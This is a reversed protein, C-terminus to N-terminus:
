SAWAPRPGTARDPSSGPSSRGPSSRGPSSGPSSGAPSSGSSEPHVTAPRIRMQRTPDEEPVGGVETDTADTEPFERDLVARLTDTSSYRAAPDKVLLDLIVQELDPHIVPNFHRPATVEKHLHAGILEGVGAAVFPPQGCMLEYLICGMSYLDARHDVEGAGKCQEPAMYTPTGMVAGSKTALHGPDSESDDFLKALGFDLVRTREGGPFDPDPVLFINDPKLDRHVVGADHAAGVASAVHRLIPVAEDARFIGHSRIRRKLTEGELFEMIIYARGDTHYGYDFIEVIGPHRIKTTARAEDFFRKVIKPKESVEKRLLKVAAIKGILTHEARYVVGMGGAAVREIIRYSGVQEGLM